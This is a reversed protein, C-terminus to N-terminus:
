DFGREEVTSGVLHKRIYFGNPIVEQVLPVHSILGVARNQRVLSNLVQLVQDLTGSGNETDLSGFGEDIFVTDLRVKGSASEVVDALGLALALAAIFTEGGSLTSTARSKGTHTDFVQIGLGRNGRGSGDLDRELFYRGSTMPHLRLNAAVLVQDFMAGIAYTELTLRQGNQGNVLLALGRLPGSAAEAEDLKQLTDQLSTKLNNLQDLRTKAGIREETAKVAAESMAEYVERVEKLDPRTMGEVASSALAVADEASKHERRYVEVSERDVELSEIFPKLTQFAEVTLGVDALRAQFFADAKRHHERFVTLAREASELEKAAVISAERTNRQKEEAAAKAAVLEELSKSVDEHVANLVEIDRLDDPVHALKGDRTSTAETAKNRCEELYNRLEDRERELSAYRVDLEEIEADAAAIDVEPGLLGLASDEASIKTLLAAATEGSRPLLSHRKEREALTAQLEALKVNSKRVTEDALQWADRAERFASDLGVNEIKGTAPAPHETAGCVPCPSGADLKMALHLAQAATLNKEAAEFKQGAAEAQESASDFIRAQEVVAALSTQVELQAKEYAEAAALQTVLSARRGRIESRAAEGIRTAKISEVKLIRTARLDALRAQAKEYASLAERQAATALEVAAVSNAAAEIIQGFRELEDKKRRLLDGEASRENEERLAETAAESQERAHKAIVGAHQLASGADNVEGSTEKLRDEADLLPRAREVQRVREALTEFNQKQKELEEFRQRSKEAAAFKEETAEALSVEKEAAKSRSKAINEATLLETLNAESSEIGSILADTSEFGEAVIRRACLEREERVHREAADAESRLDAMLMEYHSVDFLERLIELREKTKASLFTEFRGQPLLVIQRFQESGYGLLEVIAADVERVKREAIIKGRDNDTIEDPPMGTAEFLYSEHVSRTEGEGRTKPRMQEPRRLVVYRQDGVDFVFEVETLVDPDAHDSRLSPAEQDSKAPEGFLAFTMANFITSKGSGTQGYIGFLGAEIAERFDIVVREPYPGFAQLTLRVPRM